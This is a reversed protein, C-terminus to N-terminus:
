KLTNSKFLFHNTDGRVMTKQCTQLNRKNIGCNLKKITGCSLIKSSKKYPLEYDKLFNQAVKLSIEKKYYNTAERVNDKAIPSIWVKFNM